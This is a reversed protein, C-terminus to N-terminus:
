SAPAWHSNGNLARNNEAVHLKRTVRREAFLADFAVLLNLDLSTVAPMTVVINASPPARVGVVGGRRYEGAPPARGPDASM